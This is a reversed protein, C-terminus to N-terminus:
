WGARIERLTAELDPSHSFLLNSPPANQHLNNQRAVISPLLKSQVAKQRIFFSNRKQQSQRIRSTVHSSQKAVLSIPFSFLCTPREYVLIDILDLLTRFHQNLEDSKRIDHGHCIRGREVLLLELGTLRTCLVEFEM